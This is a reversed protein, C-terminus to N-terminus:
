RSMFQAYILRSLSDGSVSGLGRGGGFILWRLGTTYLRSGLLSSYLTAVQLGHQNHVGRLCDSRKKWINLRLPDTDCPKQKQNKKWSDSEELGRIIGIPGNRIKEFIRLFIRLELNAVPTLSVPPAGQSSFIEVFKRFFKFRDLHFVRPSPPFQNMFFVLLLFDRDCQGKLPVTFRSRCYISWSFQPSKVCFPKPKGPPKLIRISYCM